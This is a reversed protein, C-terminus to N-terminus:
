GSRRGSGVASIRCRWYRVPAATSRLKSTNTAMRVYLGAAVEDNSLNPLRFSDVYYRAYSAFVGNILRRQERGHM